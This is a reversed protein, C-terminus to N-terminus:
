RSLSERKHEITARNRNFLRSSDLSYCPHQMENTFDGGFYRGAKSAVSATLYSVHTKSDFQRRTRPAPRTPTTKENYDTFDYPLFSFSFTLLAYPIVQNPCPVLFAIVARKRARSQPVNPVPM